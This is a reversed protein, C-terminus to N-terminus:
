LLDTFEKPFAWSLIQKGPATKSWRYQGLTTLSGKFRSYLGELRIYCLTKIMGKQMNINDTKRINKCAQFLKSSWIVSDFVVYYCSTLCGARFITYFLKSHANLSTKSAGSRSATVTSCTAATFCSAQVVSRIFNCGDKLIWKNLHFVGATHDVTLSPASSGIIGM